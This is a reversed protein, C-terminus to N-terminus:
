PGSRFFKPSSEIFWPDHAINLLNHAVAVAVKSYLVRNSHVVKREPLLFHTGRSKHSASGERLCSEVIEEAANVNSNKQAHEFPTHPVSTLRTAGVEAGYVGAGVQRKSNQQRKCSARYKKLPKPETCKLM